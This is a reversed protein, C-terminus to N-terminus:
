MIEYPAVMKSPLDICLKITPVTFWEVVWRVLAWCEMCTAAKRKWSNPFSLMQVTELQLHTRNKWLRDRFYPWTTFSISSLFSLWGTSIKLFPQIQNPIWWAFYLVEDNQTNSINSYSVRQNACPVATAKTPKLWPPGLDTLNVHHRLSIPHPSLKRWLYGEKDVVRSVQRKKHM